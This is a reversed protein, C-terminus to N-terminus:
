FFYCSLVDSVNNLGGYLEDVDSNDDRFTEVKQEAKKERNKPETKENGNGPGSNNSKQDTKKLVKVGGAGDEFDYASADVKRHQDYERFDARNKYEETKREEKQKKREDRVDKTTSPRAYRHQLDEILKLNERDIREKGTIMFKGFRSHTRRKYMCAKKLARKAKNATDEDKFEAVVPFNKEPGTWAHITKVFVIDGNKINYGFTGLHTSSIEEFFAVVKGLLERHYQDKNVYTTKDIGFVLIEKDCRNKEGVKKKQSGGKPANSQRSPYNASQWQGTQYPPQRLSEEQSPSMVWKTELKPNNPDEKNQILRKQLVKTPAEPKRDVHLGPGM